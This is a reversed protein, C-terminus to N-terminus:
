ASGRHRTRLTAQGRGSVSDSRDRPERGSKSKARQDGKLTAKGSWLGSLGRGMGVSTLDEWSDLGMPDESREAVPSLSKTDVVAASDELLVVPAEITSRPCFCGCGTPCAVDVQLFWQQHCLAHLTHGCCLCPVHAGMAAEECLSCHRRAQGRECGVCRGKSGEVVRGQLPDGCNGCHGGIVLGRWALARAAEARKKGLQLLFDGSLPESYYSRLGNFKLIELRATELGWLALVNAYSERYAKYRLGRRPDLLPVSACGDDDFRDQNRLSVRIRPKAAEIGIAEDNRGVESGDSESSPEEVAPDIVTTAGWTVVGPALSGLFGDVASPRKKMTTAGHPPSSTATTGFPRAFSAAFNSSLSATSRRGLRQEPSTSLSQAAAHIQDLSVRSARHTLSPIAETPYPTVPDSGWPGNSSGVSGYTGQPTNLARPTSPMSITPQYHSWAVPAAAFYDLSYAPSKMSMPMEKKADARYSSGARFGRPESVTQSLNLLVNSFGGKNSPENFVCSLMALMQVDALREFHEFLAEILWAGALPHQGWKVRGMLEQPPPDHHADYALDLGNDRRASKSTAQRAVILIPTRSHQQAMIELPVENYLILEILRWLDALEPHGHRSAVEANHQALHPGNGFIKYEAALSRKAPLLTELNHISIINKSKSPPAESAASGMGQSIRSHDMSEMDRLYRPMQPRTKSSQGARFMLHSSFIMAEAEGHSLTSSGSSSSASEEASDYAWEPDEDVSSMYNSLTGGGGLRGFGPFSRHGVHYRGDAADFMSGSEKSPKETKPPFFCVLRGDEAFTAGCARPLPVNANANATGLLDPGSSDMAPNQGAASATLDDEEESSSAEHPEVADIAVTQDDMFWATSEVLGREGSLYCLIAELCGRRKFSYCYAIFQLEDSIRDWTADPVSPTKEMKFTPVSDGPYTTPFRVHIRVYVMGGDKGWPGNMSITATRKTMDMNEFSVKPFKEAAQTIEDGLSEPAGWSEEIRNGSAPPNGRSGATSGQVADGHAGKKGVKIGKMWALQTSETTVERRRTTMGVRTTHMSSMYGGEGWGRSLPIPAKEMGVGLPGKTLSHLGQLSSLRERVAPADSGDNLGPDDRFTKYVADKRTLNFKRFVEKGRHYGVRGLTEQDVHHLRLDRDTGWSVLQFERQDVGDEINGRPRWLFEKVQDEHGEFTHVAPIVDDKSVGTNLRRDFLHLDTNGRQPMALLGWGFPTHRARWVPFDTRIVREPEDEHKEYDWFKISKDLSCTVVGTSRTRNWDVGYIKTDHAVISKLPYAGKRDDWIRLIKDHSSALIHPEQRNWKVQTAGAFWDCFTMSPKAPDRLDWCHVFSDVACTALIDPHHASFNIDTIARSHAHLIHEIANMPGKMALNWVLAKQNSTSIVWYDRVAFPSWQVDAVEWPTRHPLHRPPSYPSDLDIIHLGERSALAVDRGCPSISMSGVPQNVRISMDLTFTPSDFASRPHLPPSNPDM